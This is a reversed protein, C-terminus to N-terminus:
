LDSKSLSLFNIVRRLLKRTGRSYSCLLVQFDSMNDNDNLSFYSMNMLAFKKLSVPEGNISKASPKPSIMTGLSASGSKRMQQGTNPVVEPIGRSLSSSHKQCSKHPQIIGTSGLNSSKMKTSNALLATCPKNRATIGAYM